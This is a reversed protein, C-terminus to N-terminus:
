KATIMLSSYFTFSPMKITLTGGSVTFETTETVSAGDRYTLVCLEAATKDALHAPLKVSVTGGVSATIAGTSKVIDYNVFDVYYRGTTRNIHAATYVKSFASLEVTNVTEATENTATKKGFNIGNTTGLITIPANVGTLALKSDTLLTRVGALAKKMESNYSESTHINYLVVAPDNKSYVIQNSYNADNKLALLIPTDYKQYSMDRAAFNGLENKAEDGTLILRRTSDGDLWAKVANVNAESINKIYPLILVKMETYTALREALAGEQICAYPINFEELAYAWSAYGSVGSIYNSGRISKYGSPSLSAFESSVSYYVGVYAYNERGRYYDKLMGIADNVYKTSSETGAIQGNGAKDGANMTTNAALAEFGLLKAMNETDYSRLYFWVSARKVSSASTMYNYEGTKRARPAISSGTASSNVPLSLWGNNETHVVDLFSYGLNIAYAKYNTTQTVLNGNRDIYSTDRATPLDDIYLAGNSTYNFDNGTVAISDPDLGLAAAEEKIIRHLDISAVAQQLSKHALYAAYVSDSQWAVNSWGSAGLNYNGNSYKPCASGNIDQYRRVLYDRVDFDEYNTYNSASTLGGAELAATAGEAVARTIVDTHSPLYENAFRWVSWEGFSKNIMGNSRINDWGLYNDIWFGDAGWELLQRIYLRQLELWIPAAADKGFSMDGVPTAKSGDAYELSVMGYTNTAGSNVFGGADAAEWSGNLDKAACADYLKAKNPSFRDYGDLYGLASTGDPYKLADSVSEPVPFGPYTQNVWDQVGSWILKKGGTIDADSKPGSWAWTWYNALEKVAGTFEDTVSTDIYLLYARTEGWGEIWAQVKRGSAHVNEVSARGGYVYCYLAEFPGIGENRLSGTATSSDANFREVYNVINNGENCTFRAFDGYWPTVMNPVEREYWDIKEPDEIRSEGRIVALGDFWSTGTIGWHSITVCTVVGDNPATFTTSVLTWDQTKSMSASKQVVAAADSNDSLKKFEVSISPSASVNKTKVYAQVTYTEGPVLVGPAIPYMVKCPMAKTDSYFIKVSKEGVIKNVTDTMVVSNTPAGVGNWSGAAMYNNEKAFTRVDVSNIATVTEETAKLYTKIKPVELGAYVSEDYGSGELLGFADMYLDGELEAGRTYVIIKVASFGSLDNDITGHTGVPLPDAVFTISCFTWEGAKLVKNTGIVNSIGICTNDEKQIEFIIDSLDSIGDPKAMFFLTYTKGKELGDMTVDLYYGGTSATQTEAEDLDFDVAYKGDYGNYQGVAADTISVVSENETPLGWSWTTMGISSIEWPTKYVINATEETVELLNEYKQPSPTPTATVFQESTVMKLLLLVDTIDIDGSNDIDGLGNVDVQEDTVRKLLLLVDNINVSGDGNCDGVYAASATMWLVIAMSIVLMVSILATFIRKKM